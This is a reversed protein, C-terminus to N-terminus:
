DAIIIKELSELVYLASDASQIFKSKSTDFFHAHAGVRRANDAAQVIQAAHVYKKPNLELWKLASAEWKNAVRDMEDAFPKVVGFFDAAEKSERREEYILKAKKVLSQLTKTQETLQM